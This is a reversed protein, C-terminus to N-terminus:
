VASATSPAVYQLVLESSRPTAFSPCKKSVRPTLSPGCTSRRLPASEAPLQDDTSRVSSTSLWAGVAGSATDTAPPSAQCRPLWNSTDQLLGSWPSADGM